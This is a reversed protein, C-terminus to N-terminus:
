NSNILVMYKNTLTVFWNKPKQKNYEHKVHVTNYISEIIQLYM